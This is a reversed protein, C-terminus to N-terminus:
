DGYAVSHGCTDCVWWGTFQNYIMTGGCHACPKM